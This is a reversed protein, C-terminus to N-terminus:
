RLQKLLQRFDKVVLDAKELQRMPFNTAIAIVPLGARKAATIGAPADEIVVCESPRLRLKRLALRYVEPNPKSSRYQEGTVLLSFMHALGAMRLLERVIPRRSGTALCLRLGRRRFLHLITKAGPVPKAYARLHTRQHERRENAIATIQARSLKKGFEERLFADVKKGVKKTYKKDSLPFGQKRLIYQLSRFKPLESNVIVGDFDFIVAKIM